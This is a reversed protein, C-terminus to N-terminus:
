EVGEVLKDYENQEETTLGQEYCYSWCESSAKDELEKIRDKM